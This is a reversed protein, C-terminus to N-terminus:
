EIMDEVFEALTDGSEFLLLTEDKGLEKVKGRRPWNGVM